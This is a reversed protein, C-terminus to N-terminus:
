ANANDGSLGNIAVRLGRAESKRRSSRPVSGDGHLRIFHLRPLFRSSMQKIMLKPTLLHRYDPPLILLDSIVEFAVYRISCTAHLESLRPRAHRIDKSIQEQYLNETTEGQICAGKNKKSSLQEKSKQM